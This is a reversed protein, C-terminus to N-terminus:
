APNGKRWQDVAEDFMDQALWLMRQADWVKKDRLMRDREAQLERNREERSLDRQHFSYFGGLVDTLAALEDVTIARRRRGQADRRGSEINEIVNESLGSRSALEAMSWGRRKRSERISEAVRDSTNKETM